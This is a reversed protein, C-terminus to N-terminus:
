RAKERISEEYKRIGAMTKAQDPTVTREHSGSIRVIRDPRRASRFKSVSGGLTFTSLSISETTM